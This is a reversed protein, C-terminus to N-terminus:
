GIAAKLLLSTGLVYLSLYTMWYTQRTYDNKFFPRGSRLAAVEMVVMGSAAGFIVLGAATLLISDM